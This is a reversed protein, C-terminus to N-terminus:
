GRAAVDWLDCRHEQPFPTAGGPRFVTWARTVHDIHTAPVFRVHTAGFDFGTHLDRLPAFPPSTRRVAAGRGREGRAALIEASSRGRPCTMSLDACGVKRAFAAGVAVAAEHTRAACNGYAGSEVIGARYPGSTPSAPQTCVSRGGASEGAVTVRDQDGGFRGIDARVWRPAAQQDLMGFNGSVGDRAEGDLGATALFGMAGLRYNVTVVVTGTRRGFTDPVIDEGAGEPVYM